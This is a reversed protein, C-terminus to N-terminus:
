FEPEIGESVSFPMSFSNYEEFPLEGIYSWDESKYFPTSGLAGNRNKAIILDILNTLDNGELDSEIGYYEPRHLFMIIDADQEINGSDRLDSMMPRRDGSRHEVSRNLQALAIVPCSCKKALGKLSSSIYGVKDNTSQNGSPKRILQLYDVLIIDIDGKSMEKLAYSRIQDVSLGSEDNILFNKEKYKHSHIDLQEWQHDELQGTQLKLSNAKIELSLVRDILREKSMELSFYLVKKDNLAQFKALLLSIATKGMSPRAALIVLDGPQWGNTVKDLKSHGTKLGILENGRQSADSYVDLRKQMVEFVNHMDDTAINFLNDFSKNVEIQTDIIDHTREALRSIEDTFLEVLNRRIWEQKIIRVHEDSHLGSGLNSTLTSVYYAGGIQELEPKSFESVVTLLDIKGGKKYIKDICGFILKHSELTFYKSDLDSILIEQYEPFGLITGLVIQETKEIM